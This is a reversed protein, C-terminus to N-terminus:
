DYNLKLLNFGAEGNCAYDCYDGIIKASQLNVPKRKEQYIPNNKM